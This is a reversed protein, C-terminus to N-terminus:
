ITINVQLMLLARGDIRNMDCVVYKLHGIGTEELWERVREVRWELVSSDDAMRGLLAGAPSDTFGWLAGLPPDTYGWLAGPPPDTFNNRVGKPHAVTYQKDAFTFVYWTGYYNIALHYLVESGGFCKKLKKLKLKFQSYAKFFSIKILGIISYM